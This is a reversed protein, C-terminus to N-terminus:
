KSTANKEKTLEPACYRQEKDRFFSWPFVHKDFFKYLKSWTTKKYRADDLAACYGQRYGRRYARDGSPYDKKLFERLSLVKFGNRKNEM